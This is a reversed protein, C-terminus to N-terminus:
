VSLSYNVEVDPIREISSVSGKLVADSLSSRRHLISGVCWRRNTHLTAIHGFSPHISPQSRRGENGAM